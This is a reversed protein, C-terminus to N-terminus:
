INLMHHLNNSNIRRNCKIHTENGNGETEYKRDKTDCQFRIVIGTIHGLVTWEHRM